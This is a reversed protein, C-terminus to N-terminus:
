PRPARPALAVFGAFALTAAVGLATYGLTAAIATAMAAGLVAGLGDCGVAFGEGAGASMRQMARVARAM